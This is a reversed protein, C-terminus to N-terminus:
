RVWIQVRRNKGESTGVAAEARAWDFSYSQVELQGAPAGKAVLYDRATEARKLSLAKNFAEDGTHDCAGGLQAKLAPNGKLKVALTDLKAKHDPKLDAKAIDYDDLITDYKGEYFKDMAAGWEASPAETCDADTAGTLVIPATAKDEITFGWKLAGLPERTELVVAVTEFETKIDGKGERALLEREPEDDMTASVAPVGKKASGPHRAPEEAVWSLTGQDWQAGYYPDNEDAPIHDARTHKTAEEFPEFTAKNVAPDAKTGGPYFLDAGVHNVVTQAFSVNKAEIKTPDPKFDGDFRPRSSTEAAVTWKFTGKSLPKNGPRAAPLTAGAGTGAKDSTPARARTKDTVTPAPSPAASRRPFAAGLKANLSAPANGSALQAPLEHRLEPNASLTARVQAVSQQELQEVLTRKGPGAPASDSASGGAMNDVASGKGAGGRGEYM